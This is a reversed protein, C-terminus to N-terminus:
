FVMGGPFSSFSVVGFNCVLAASIANISLEATKRSVWCIGRNGASEASAIAHILALVGTTSIPDPNHAGAHLHVGSYQLRTFKRGPVGLTATNMKKKKKKKQASLLLTKKDLGVPHSLVNATYTNLMFNDERVYCM